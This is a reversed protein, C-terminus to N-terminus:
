GKINKENELKDQTQIELLKSWRKEYLLQILYEITIM